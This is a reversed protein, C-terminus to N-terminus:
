GAYEIKNSADRLVVSGGPDGVRLQLEAGDDFDLHLADHDERIAAIKKSAAQVYDGVPKGQIQLMSGDDFHIATESPKSRINSVTRGAIIRTLKENRSM